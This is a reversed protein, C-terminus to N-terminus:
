TVTSSQPNSYVCNIYVRQATVTSSPANPPSKSKTATAYRSNTSASPRRSNSTKSYPIQRKNSSKPSKNGDKVRNLSSTRLGSSSIIHKTKELWRIHSGSQSGFRLVSNSSGYRLWRLCSRGFLLLLCM